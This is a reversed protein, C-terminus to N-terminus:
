PAIIDLKIFSSVCVEHPIRMSGATQFPSPSQGKSQQRGFGDGSDVGGKKLCCSDAAKRPILIRFSYSKRSSGNVGENWIASSCESM